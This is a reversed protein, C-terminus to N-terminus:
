PSELLTTVVWCQPLRLCDERLHRLLPIIRVDKECDDELRDGLIRFVVVDDRCALLLRVYDDGCWDPKSRIRGTAHCRTCGVKRTQGVFSHTYPEAVRVYKKGTCVPCTEAVTLCVPAFPNGYVERILSAGSRLPQAPRQKLAETIKAETLFGREYRVTGAPRGELAELLATTRHFMWRLGYSGSQVFNWHDLGSDNRRLWDEERM